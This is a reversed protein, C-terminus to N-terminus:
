IVMWYVYWPDINTRKVFDSGSRIRRRVIKKRSRRREPKQKRKKRRYWTLSLHFCSHPFPISSVLEKEKELQTRKKEAMWKDYSIKNRTDEIEHDNIVQQLTQETNLTFLKSIKEKWEKAIINSKVKHDLNEQDEVLISTDQLSFYPTLISKIHNDFDEKTVVEGNGLGKEKALRRLQIIGKQVQLQHYHDLHNIISKLSKELSILPAISKKRSQQQQLQQKQLLKENKYKELSKAFKELHSIIWQNWNMDNSGRDKIFGFFNWFLSKTIEKNIRESTKLTERKENILQTIINSKIREKEESSLKYYLKWYLKENNPIKVPNGSSSQQKMILEEWIYTRIKMNLQHQFDRRGDMDLIWAEIRYEIEQLLAEEPLISHNKVYLEIDEKSLTTNMNGSLIKTFEKPKQPGKVMESQLKKALWEKWPVPIKKEKGGDESKEDKVASDPNGSTFPRESNTGSSALPQAPGGEVQITKDIIDQIEKEQQPNELNHQNSHNRKTLRLHLLYKKLWVNNLVNGPGKVSKPLNEEMEDPSIPQQQSRRQSSLQTQKQHYPFKIMKELKEQYLQRYSAAFETVLRKLMWLQQENLFLRASLFAAHIDRDNLWEKMKSQIIEGRPPIYTYDDIYGLSIQIRHYLDTKKVINRILDEVVDKAQNIEEETLQSPKLHISSSNHFIPQSKRGASSARGKAFHGFGGFSNRRHPDLFNDNDDKADKPFIFSLPDERLRRRWEDEEENTRNRASSHDISKSRQDSGRKAKPTAAKRAPQSTSTPRAHNPTSSRKVTNSKVVPDASSPRPKTLKGQGSSGVRTEVKSKAGDGSAMLFLRNEEHWDKQLSSSQSRANPRNNTSKGTADTLKKPVPINTVEIDFPQPKQKKLLNANTTALAAEKQLLERSKVYEATDIDDDEHGADHGTFAYEEDYPSPPEASKAKTTPIKVSPAHQDDKSYQLTQEVTEGRETGRRGSPASKPRPAQAKERIDRIYEEASVHVFDDDDEPLLLPQKPQQHERQELASSIYDSVHREFNNQYLIQIKEEPEMEKSEDYEDEDDEEDVDEVDYREDKKPVEARILNGQIDYEGAGWSRFDPQSSQKTESHAKDTQTETPLELNQLEAMEAAEMEMLYHNVRDECLKFFYTVNILAQHFEDEGAACLSHVMRLALPSVALELERKTEADQNIGMTSALSLIKADFDKMPLKGQNSKENFWISVDISRSPATSILLATEMGLLEFPQKDSKKNETM